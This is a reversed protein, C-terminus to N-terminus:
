KERVRVNRFEIRNGHNQLCVYGRLPKSKLAPITGQDVDIIGAGNMSVCIRNGVCEIDLANWEPSPKAANVSPAVHGYLAGSTRLGPPKGADDQIQIEYAARSPRTREEDPGAVYPITRIGIGSNGGAAIRYEVHLAFDSFERKAYRLFGFGSGACVISGNEVRWVPKSVGNEIGEKTGEVVWGDLDKGGSLALEEDDTAALLVAVLALMSRFAGM